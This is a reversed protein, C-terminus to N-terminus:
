LIILRADVIGDIERIRALQEATVKEDVIVVSVATGRAEKRGVQMAAININNDGLFTGLKGVIGPRDQNKIVLMFRSPALDLEYGYLGTLRPAYDPAAATGSVTLSDITVSIGTGREATGTTSTERLKIGREEAMLPANVYSVPEEVVRSFFGKLVAVSLLKTDVSALTGTYEVEITSFSGEVLQAAIAGLFEATALYPKVAEMAEAPVMPINVAASVFDGRLAAIVQEAIMYGAKDQAEVTSAGLHPTVVVNDFEFLPSDTCPESEFVDLAAGAVKGEKLYRALTEESFLGGRATNVIYVGDKMLQFERDSLIGVTEKTKPLHITLFDAVKLLEHLDEYREVGLQAFKESSVYPDFGVVKMGLGRAKVAVIAGVRGLGIVGLVKDTVEVGNFKSREWKREHKLSHHAQPIRRLLALLLAIAHEAASTINSQPANCVVIGRKTAEEVDINDVGIGARGIVKLNSGAEIVERDVKTASRVVLADFEHLRAIMEERSWDVGIEVDFGAERMKEIGTKSLKEKVLIKM